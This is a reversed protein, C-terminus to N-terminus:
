EAKSAKVFDELETADFVTHKASLRIPRPFGPKKEQCWGWLTSPAICLSKCVDKPRVHQTLRAQQSVPATHSTSM